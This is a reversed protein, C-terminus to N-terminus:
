KGSPFIHSPRPLHHCSVLGGLAAKAIASLRGESWRWSSSRVEWNWPKELGPVMEVSVCGLSAARAPSKAWAVLLGTLFDDRRREGEDEEAAPM